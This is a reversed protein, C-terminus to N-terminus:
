SLRVVGLNLYPNLRTIQILLYQRIFTKLYVFLKCIWKMILIYVYHYNFDTLFLENLLVTDTVLM